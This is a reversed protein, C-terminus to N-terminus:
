RRVRNGFDGFKLINLGNIIGVRSAEIAQDQSLSSLSQLAPSKALSGLAMVNATKSPDLIVSDLENLLSQASTGTLKNQVLIPLTPGKGHQKSTSIRTQLASSVIQASLLNVRQETYNRFVAATLGLDSGPANLSSFFTGRAQAYDQVFSDFAANVLTIVPQQRGARLTQLHPHLGSVLVSPAQADSLVVRSELESELNPRFGQRKAM